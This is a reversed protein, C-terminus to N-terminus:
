TNGHMHIIQYVFYVYQYLNIAKTNSLDHALEDLMYLELRRLMHLHAVAWLELRPLCIYSM